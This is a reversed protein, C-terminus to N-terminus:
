RVAAFVTYGRREQMEVEGFADAVFSGIRGAQKTVLYFRGGRRLLSLGRETFLRAISDHAFYPPNALVVDFGGDPLETLRSSAVTEFSPVGNARANLAALAVARVNSDVFTTVGAPAPETLVSLSLLGSRAETLARPRAARRAAFCGNAGCGCGLDLVRDGPEIEAVELLARAGEDLRGHSFVGPRSLFRLTDSGIRAQFTVEHRRRPRDGERQCWFVNGGTTPTQHVRGFVKKLAPLFLQDSAYPSLVLLQGGPRLIHFAQELMDLKLLREGGHPAPYLVTAFDAPLDWLDPATVVQEGHGVQAIEERLRDAQYLDMQYCTVARTPLEAVLAATSRPSGLVVAVPPQVRAELRPLGQLSPGRPTPTSRRQM